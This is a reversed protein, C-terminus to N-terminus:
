LGFRGWLMREEVAAIVGAAWAAPEAPGSRIEPLGLRRHWWRRGDGIVRLRVQKGYRDRLVARLDGLGDILGLELAKAGSWFRGSFLEDEGARLRGDRRERVQARFAEHIESQLARLHDVEEPKERQFPDLAAKHKGSAYVRREIGIRKLAEAFGFGSSVVGISGVISSPDAYIEDAATALWYGGSAAVDEVFAFVPVQHEVALARIRGSILASQVPTGGPSNVVLAVAKVHRLRFARELAGAIGALTLGRRLPGLGGIIGSLRVVAVVPLGRRFRLGGLAGLIGRNAPAM